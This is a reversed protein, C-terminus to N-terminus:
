REVGKNDGDGSEIDEDDDPEEADALDHETDLDPHVVMPESDPSSVTTGPPPLRSNGEDKGSKKAPAAKSKKSKNRQTAMVSGRAVAIGAPVPAAGPTTVRVGRM